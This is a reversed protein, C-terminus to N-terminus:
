QPAGEPDSVVVAPPAVAAAGLPVEPLAEPAPALEPEPEVPEIVLQVKVPQEDEMWVTGGGLILGAELEVSERHEGIEIPETQVEAVRM